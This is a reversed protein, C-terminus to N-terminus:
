TVWKTAHKAIWWTCPGGIDLQCSGFVSTSIHFWGIWEDKINEVKPQQIHAMVLGNDRLMLGGGFQIRQKSWDILPRGERPYLCRPVGQNIWIPIRKWGGSRLQMCCTDSTHGQLNRPRKVWRTRRNRKFYKQLPFHLHIGRHSPFNQIRTSDAFGLNKFNFVWSGKEVIRQM